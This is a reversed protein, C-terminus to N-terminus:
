LTQAGRIVRRLFEISEDPKEYLLQLILDYIMFHLETGSPAPRQFDIGTAEQVQQVLQLNKQGSGSVLLLLTNYDNSDRLERQNQALTMIYPNQEAYLLAYAQIKPQTLKKIFDPSFRAIAKELDGTFSAVRALNKPTPYLESKKM